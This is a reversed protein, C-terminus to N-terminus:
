NERRLGDCMVATAIGVNLSEAKGFRPITVRHTLRAAVEPGVGQSENGMVLYGGSRPFSFQHLSEGEMVAGVMTANAAHQIIFEPLDTYFARVRTFSGKSAAIVKPNYFDTTNPSCIIKDIGYWDAIRVITGLNGPDRVDDLMLAYETEDARLFENERTRAVALCADTSQFTGLRDMEAPSATIWEATPHSPISGYKQRFDDTSVM